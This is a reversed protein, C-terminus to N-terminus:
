CPVGEKECSWTSKEIDFKVYYPQYPESSAIRRELEDICQEPRDLDLGYLIEPGFDWWHTELLRDCIEDPFKRRIERAPVGGVVAYPRVDRTVVSGATVVAGDGITVGSLITAGFGIWVDNGIVPLPKKWSDLNKKAMDKEWAEDHKEIFPAFWERENKNFKFVTSPSLFSLSHGGFGANVGHAIACFRGICECELRCNSSASYVDGSNIITFAGLRGAEIQSRGIRIPAEIIVEKHMGWTGIQPNESVVIANRGDKLRINENLEIM